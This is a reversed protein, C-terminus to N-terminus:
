ETNSGYRRSDTASITFAGLSEQLRVTSCVRASRREVFLWGFRSRVTAEGDSPASSVSPWTVDRRPVGLRATRSGDRRPNRRGPDIARGRDNKGKRAVGSARWVGDVRPVRARMIRRGRRPLFACRSQVVMEDVARPVIAIQIALGEEFTRPDQISTDDLQHSWSIQVVQRDRGGRDDPPRREITVESTPLRERWLRLQEDGQSREDVPRLESAKAVDLDLTDLMMEHRQRSRRRLVRWVQDM